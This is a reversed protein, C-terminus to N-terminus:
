QRLQWQWNPQCYSDVADLRVNKPKIQSRMFGSLRLSQFLLEAQANSCNAWSESCRGSAVHSVDSDVSTEAGHLSRRVSQLSRTNPAQQPSLKPTSVPWYSCHFGDFLPLIQVSSLHIWCFGPHMGRNNLTICGEVIPDIVTIYVLQRVLTPWDTCALVAM